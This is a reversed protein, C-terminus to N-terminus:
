LYTMDRWNVGVKPEVVLPVSLEVAGEMVERVLEAVQKVDRQPLEFVLDDHVQLLMRCDPSVEAMPGSLRVMALKIIDAATGQLPANAAAREAYARAGPNGSNLDPLPRRRGMLTKVYGDLRAQQVVGEMYEKVRPLREFYSHIFSKAETRAIGLQKALASSGMGYIVAYNVTKAMRRMDSTVQEIDLDFIAAATRKHIDEGARFAALLSEDGSMHALIRLEIQSYDAAMLVTDPSQSVFCSRVQRGLETRVPINQLNPNRSSLRGTAVVTQELTTHIRGDQPSILPILGDVYTSKLKAYERYQLIRAAIEHDVALEELVQAGTSWGTKTKRGKPLELKGFLIEGIQKPSGLNFEEGALTYVRQSMELMLGSLKDGIEDLRDQDVAIGALEMDLLIPVLPMEVTRFLEAHQTAELQEDLVKRLRLVATAEAIARAAPGPLGNAGTGDARPLSEGFHQALLEDVNRDPRNAAALYAAVATDYALGALTLDAPRLSRAMGKLDHGIKPCGPDALMQQLCAPVDSAGPQAFLGGADATQPLAVYQASDEDLAVAVGAPRDDQVALAIGVGHAGRARRCLEDIEDGSAVAGDQVSVVDAPLRTLLSTFELEGLLARLRPIDLGAWHEQILKEDVPADVVITALTKSLRATQEHEALRTRLSARDVEDLREYVAELSGFQALLAQATKPGVKPVGPINDSTDGALGKLDAIAAPAVGFEARVAESDYTKTDRLGRLPAVVTTGTQVLQCLDRDGTVVVVQAGQAQASKTLSGIIDDAEYGPLETISMGMGEALDHIIGLQSVLDEDMPPRNAKYEASMEHRFTPGPADLALIAVDPEEAQLLLLLMQVFGFAANTPQGSTTSLPPLAHYARHILSNGDVILIKSAM